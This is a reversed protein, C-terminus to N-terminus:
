YHPAREPEGWNLGFTQNFHQATATDNLVNNLCCGSTDQAAEISRKCDSSCNSAIPPCATSLEFLVGTSGIITDGCRDGSPAKGCVARYAQESTM